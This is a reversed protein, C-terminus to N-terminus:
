YHFQIGIKVTRQLPYSLGNGGGMEPDWTKFPSFTLLNTGSLYVRLWRNFTYGVEATKLRLYSANRVYYTSTQIDNQLYVSSLRPYSADAVNNAESWHDDVIYRSINYGQHAADAFPWIDSMLLSVKADGQFFVSADWKKYKINLGLGYVIEPVTPNGITTIDNGDIKNDGNLDKYKIDGITYNSLTQKPSNDIEKQSTFLGEAIYGRISNIPHGIVSYYSAVNTPEDKNTVENHAYTFSGNVGIIFDKNVAKHFDLGIDVGHNKVSGINAYPFANAFGSIAAMSRRQMFIGTRNEHFFDFTLDLDNFLGMDMGINMKKSKEWTADENGYVSIEPGSAQGHNTGYWWAQAQNLNVSTVYPFRTSLVDNGVLGYTGRIKLNNVIHKLPQFFKENSITWGLAIAPFFGFRHKPAFNESGNYGFTAEMLYKEDYNYTLRGAIGQERYPLLDYENGNTKDNRTEKMHYVFTAGTNHKGFSRAYDVTAQLSWVRNTPDQGSASQIATNGATGIPSETYQYNGNKDITYDDSVKYYYPQIWHNLWSFSYNYFSALASASLGPTIFKLDQNVTFATTMYVYSHETYGSSMKAYPNIEVTGVDWSTNNGYRVFTDEDQAPLTAPFRVPNGRMVLYFFDSLQMEGRTDGPDAGAYPAHYQYIQANMNLGVKTTSTINATINSQFLYKKSYTSTNMVAEKPSRTMGNENFIGANMFYGIKQSGGKVSINLNQNLSYDKFLLKYWDNDPFLYPNARSRTKDIKDQSYFPTYTTGNLNADNKKAENYMEMYTAGDAMKQITTPMSVTNDFRIDVSMKDSLRGTKTTILIVGNAGRSGYLSTATADKLVSFSEISEPQINNLMTTNIEVGDLLILPSTNSGFTSVGRIYFQAADNGPEGKKQFAIIGPIKGAFSTTLSSSTMKLDDAKVATVSGVLSEKKQKGFGVVVVEDLVKNNPILNFSIFKKNKIAIEKKNYGLYSATLSEDDSSVAISFLGDEDTIAKNSGKSETITAGLVPDNNEDCVFGKMVHKGSNEHTEEKGELTTKKIPVKAKTRTKKSLIIHRGQISYSLDNGVIQEMISQLSNAGKKVPIVKQLNLLNGTYDVSYGIQSEIADVATKVSVKAQGFKVTQASISLMPLLLFLFLFYKIRKKSIDCLNMKANKM